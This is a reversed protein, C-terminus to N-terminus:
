HGHTTTTVLHLGAGSLNLPVGFCDMRVRSLAKLLMEIVFVAVVVADVHHLTAALESSENLYCDDFCLTISSLVIVMIIANDFSLVPASEVRWVILASAAKRLPHEAEFLWFARDDAAQAALWARM